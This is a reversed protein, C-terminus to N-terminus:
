QGQFQTSLGLFILYIEAHISALSSIDTGIVNWIFIAQTLGQVRISPMHSGAYPETNFLVSREEQIISNYNDM